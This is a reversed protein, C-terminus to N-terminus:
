QEGIEFDEWQVAPVFPSLHQVNETIVGIRDLDGLARTQAILIADGDLRDDSTFPRGRNRAEAWVHAADQMVSRSLPAFYLAEGLADLQDLQKRAPIRLLGRRVEYDVVEPIVIRYGAEIVRGFWDTIDEFKRPHVIQSLPRADLVVTDVRSIEIPMDQSEM